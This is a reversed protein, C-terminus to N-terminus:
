AALLTSVLESVLEHAAGDQIKPILAAIRCRDFIVMSRSKKTWEDRTLTFPVFMCSIVATTEIRLWVDMFELPKPNKDLWDDGTACQGFLCVFNCKKDPFPRWAFVDLGDDKEASPELVDLPKGCTAAILQKLATDFGSHDPRPAGFHYSLVGSEKGGMYKQAVAVCVAEFLRAPFLSGSGSPVAKKCDRLSILLLKTYTYEKWGAKCTISNGGADIEFPYGGGCAENRSEIESMVAEIKENDIFEIPKPNEDEADASGNIRIQRALEVLSGVGNDSTMADYELWDALRTAEDQFRPTHPSIPM